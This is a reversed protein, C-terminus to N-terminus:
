VAKKLQFLKKPFSGGFGSTLVSLLIYSMATTTLAEILPVLGLIMLFIVGVVSLFSSDAAMEYITRLESPYVLLLALYVMLSHFLMVLFITVCFVVNRGVNHKIKNVLYFLQGAITGFLIRPLVSVLPNIFLVNFGTGSTLAVLLSLLGFVLGYIVGRLRGNLATGVIVPIPILTITGIGLPIYGIFPVFSMIAIIAIIIADVALM